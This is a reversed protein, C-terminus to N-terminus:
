RVTVASWRRGGDSTIWFQREYIGIQIAYGSTDSTMSAFLDAGAGALGAAYNLSPSTQWSRGRDRSIYVDMRGGSLFITGGPSMSAAGLYGGSPPSAVRRWTRGNDGSIYATKLQNGAGPESGCGLFLWGSAAALAVSWASLCPDPLAAWRASGDAQGALLLPRGLDRTTTLVYGILGSGILSAPGTRQSGAGPILRWANMGAPSTYVAFRCSWSSAQACHGTAVLVRGAAAAVSQVPGGPVRVQRWTAGGDRTQWLQPGWAWGDRSSTFLIQGVGPAPSGAYLVPPVPPAPVAVWTRGGDTTKRLLLTQCPDHAQDACPPVALLWGTSPSVFSVSLPSLESGAGAPNNQRTLAAQGTGRDGVAHSRGCATATVLVAIMMFPVSLSRSLRGRGCRHVNLHSQIM